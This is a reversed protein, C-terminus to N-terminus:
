SRRHVEILLSILMGILCAALVLGAVSFVIKDQSSLTQQHQSPLTEQLLVYTTAASNRSM